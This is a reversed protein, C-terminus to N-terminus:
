RYARGVQCSLQAVPGAGKGSQPTVCPSVEGRFLRLLSGWAQGWTLIWWVAFSYFGFWIPAKLHIDNISFFVYYSFRPVVYGLFSTFYESFNLLKYVILISWILIFLFKKKMLLNPLPIRSIVKIILNRCCSQVRRQGEPWKFMSVPTLGRAPLAWEEGDEEDGKM